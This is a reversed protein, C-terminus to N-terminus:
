RIAAFHNAIIRQFSLAVAYWFITALLNTRLQELLPFVDIKIGFQLGGTAVFYAIDTRTHWGAATLHIFM